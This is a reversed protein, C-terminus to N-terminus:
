KGANITQHLTYAVERSEQVSVGYKQLALSYQYTNTQVRKVLEGADSATLSPVFQNLLSTAEQNFEPRDGAPKGTPRIQQMAWNLNASNRFEGGGYISCGPKIRRLDDALQYYAENEDDTFKEYIEHIALM